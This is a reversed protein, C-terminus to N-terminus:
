RNAREFLMRGNHQLLTINEARKREDMISMLDTGAVQSTQYLLQVQLLDQQLYWDTWVLMSEIDIHGLWVDIRLRGEADPVLMRRLAEQTREMQLCQLFGLGRQTTTALGNQAFQLCLRNANVPWAAIDSLLDSWRTTSLFQDCPPSGWAALSSWLTYIDEDKDGIYLGIKNIHRTGKYEMWTMLHQQGYQRAAEAADTLFYRGHVTM